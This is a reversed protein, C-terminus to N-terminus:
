PLPDWHSYTSVGVLLAVSRGFPLQNRDAPLALGTWSSFLDFFRPRVGEPKFEWRIVGDSEVTRVAGASKPRQPQAHTTAPIHLLALAVAAAVVLRIRVATLIDM